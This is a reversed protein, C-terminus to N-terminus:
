VPRAERAMALLLMAVVREFTTFTMLSMGRHVM